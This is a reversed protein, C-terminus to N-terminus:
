KIIYPGHNEANTPYCYSRADTFGCYCCKREILPPDVTYVINTDHWCHGNYKPNASCPEQNNLNWFMPM